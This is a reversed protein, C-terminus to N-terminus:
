SQNSPQEYKGLIIRPAALRRARRPARGRNWRCNESSVKMGALIIVTMYCEPMQEPVNLLCCVIM